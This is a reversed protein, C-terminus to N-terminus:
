SFISSWSGCGGSKNFRSLEVDDVFADFCSLRAIIPLIHGEVFATKQCLRLHPTSNLFPTFVAHFFNMIQTFIAFGNASQINLLFM